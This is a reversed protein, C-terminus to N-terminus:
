NFSSGECVYYAKNGCSLDYWANKLYIGCRERPYQSPQGSGWGKYSVNVGNGWHDYFKENICNLSMWVYSPELGSKKILARVCADEEPTESSVLEMGLKNCEAIAGQRTQVDKTLRYTSSTAPCSKSTTTITTSTECAFYRVDTCRKNQWKGTAMLVCYEKSAGSPYSKDWSTYSPAVDNVWKFETKNISNLGIWFQHELRNQSRVCAMFRDYDSQTKLVVLDQGMRNCDLRASEWTTLATSLKYVGNPCTPAVTTTTASTSKSTSITTTTSTTSAPKVMTASTSQSTSTTSLTSTASSNSTELALTTSIPASSSSEITSSKSGSQSVTTTDVALSTTAATTSETTVAPTQGFSGSSTQTNGLSTDVSTSGKESSSSISSTETLGTATDYSIGTSSETSGIVESNTSADTLLQTNAVLSQSSSANQTTGTTAEVGTLETVFSTISAAATHTNQEACYKIIRSRRRVISLVYASNYKKLIVNSKQAVVSQAHFDGVFESLACLVVVTFWQASFIIM